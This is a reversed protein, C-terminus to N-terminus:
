SHVDDPTFFLNPAEYVYSTMSRAVLAPYAVTARWLQPKWWSKLPDGEDNFMVPPRRLPNQLSKMVMPITKLVEDNIISDVEGHGKRHFSVFDPRIENENCFQMFTLCMKIFNPPRCSGGPGGFRLDKSAKRLGHWTANLYSM